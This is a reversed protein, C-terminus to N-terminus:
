HPLDGFNPGGVWIVAPGSLPSLACFHACREQEKSYDTIPHCPWGWFPLPPNASVGKDNKPAQPKEQGGGGRGQVLRKGKGEFLAKWSVPPARAGRRGRGLGGLMPPCLCCGLVVRVYSFGGLIQLLELPFPFHQQTDWQIGRDLPTGLNRKKKRNELFCGPPAGVGGLQLVGLM